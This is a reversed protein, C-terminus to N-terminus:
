SRKSNKHFGALFFDQDNEIFYALSDTVGDGAAPLAEYRNFQQILESTFAVNSRTADNANTNGAKLEQVLYAASYAPNTQATDNDNFLKTDHVTFIGGLSTLLSDTDTALIFNTGAASAYSSTLRIRQAAANGTESFCVKTDGNYAVMITQAAGGDRGNYFGLISKDHAEIVPYALNINELVDALKIAM